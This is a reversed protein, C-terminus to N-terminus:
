QVTFEFWGNLTQNGNQYADAFSRSLVVGTTKQFYCPNMASPSALNGKMPDYSGFVDWEYTLGSAYSIPLGNWMNAYGISLLMSTFTIKGNDYRMYDSLSGGFNKVVDYYRTGYKFYLADTAFAYRFEGYFLINGVKDKIIPAFFFYDSLDKNWPTTTSISFTFDPGTGATNDFTVNQAGHVPAVLSATFTPLMSVTFPVSEKKHAADTYAIIKYVYQVGTQMAPTVDYFSHTSTTSLKGYNVSGSEVYNNGGDTSRLVKFGLLGQNSSTPTLFKFTINIYYSTGNQPTGRVCALSGGKVSFYERSVGYTRVDANIASFDCTSIDAGAGPASTVNVAVTKEVRNNARDYVVV